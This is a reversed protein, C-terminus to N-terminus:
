NMWGRCARTGCYCKLKLTENEEVAFMYDYSLEEGEYIDRKSYIVIKKTNNLSIIKTFCNPDCSANIYRALAGKKTADCVISDDIRFMYDSGIKAAEYERERKDAVANSILEGRYEIVMEGERIMEDAFM